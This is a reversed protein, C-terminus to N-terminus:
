ASSENARPCNVVPVGREEIWHLADVPFIIQELAGDPIVRALVADAGLIAAKHRSLSGGGGIRAVLGEYPLVLATHNREAVARCLDDTYWGTGASLIVIHM